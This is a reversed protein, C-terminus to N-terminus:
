VADATAIIDVGQRVNKILTDGIKVPRAASVPRIRRLIDFLEGKPVPASTKVAVTGGGSLRVTTTLMRVPNTVENVGYTVGRPCTNGSVKIDKINGDDV